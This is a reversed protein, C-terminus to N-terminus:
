TSAATRAGSRAAMSALARAFDAAAIEETIDPDNATGSRVAIWLNAADALAVPADTGSLVATAAGDLVTTDAGDARGHNAVAIVRDGQSGAVVANAEPAFVAVPRLAISPAASGNVENITRRRVVVAVPAIPKDLPDISAGARTPMPIRAGVPQPDALLDAVVVGGTPPQAPAPQHAPGPCAHADGAFRGCTPCQQTGVQGGFLVQAGNALPGNKIAIYASDSARWPTGTGNNVAALDAALAIDFGNQPHLARYAILAAM